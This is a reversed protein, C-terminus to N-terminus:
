ATGRQLVLAQERLADIAAAIQAAQSGKEFVGRSVSPLVRSAAVGFRRGLDAMTAGQAGVGPALLWAGPMRAALTGADHNTAGIVAGLSCDAFKANLAGIEDALAEAVSLGDPCLATQTRAGEGNSSRVVVFMGCGHRRMLDMGRAFASLGLYAHVTLADCALPRSPEFYAQAYALATADIDGRKGDLLVLVQEARALALLRELVAIGASGHREFYAMQPKILGVQFRAAELLLNGFAWLGEASDPLGCQALLEPSPDIGLCLPGRQAVSSALRTAFGPTQNM